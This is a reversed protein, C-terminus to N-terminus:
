CEKWNKGITIDVVLPVKLSLVGEMTEKVLKEMEKIEDSPMEFILEDHIQLIMFAKMKRHVLKEDLQLMAKKILDAATGQLPTNVALREAASRIQGNKSSIDPILRERGLITVARGYRRASEKCTEVYEKVKHYRKFYMDIFASAQKVDIGLERALGFAQQGYIVGFNVVKAHNRQEKTVQDIPINLIEAATHAHIDENHKFAKIM